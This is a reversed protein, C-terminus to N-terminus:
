QILRLNTIIGDIERDSLRIQTNLIVWTKDTVLNVISMNTDEPLKGAYADGYQTHVKRNSTLSQFYGAFDFTAPKAEESLFLKDGNRNTYTAILVNGDKLSSDALGLSDPLKTPYYIPFHVAATLSSPLPPRPRWALYAACGVLLALAVGAVWRWRKLFLSRRVESMDWEDERM